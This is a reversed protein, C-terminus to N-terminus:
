GFPCFALFSIADDPVHSRRDEEDTEDSHGTRSRPKPLLPARRCASRRSRRWRADWRTKRELDVLQLSRQGVVADRVRALALAVQVVQALGSDM